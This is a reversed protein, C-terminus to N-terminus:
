MLATTIIDMLLDLVIGRVINRDQLVDFVYELAQSSAAAGMVSKIADPVARSMFMKKAEARLADSDTEAKEKERRAQEEETPWVSNIMDNLKRALEEESSYKGIIDKQIALRIGEVSSSGNRLLLGRLMTLLSRRVNWAKSLLYLESIALFITDILSNTESQSLEQHSALIASRRADSHDIAARPRSEVADASLSPRPSGPESMDMESSARSETRRLANGSDVVGLAPTSASATSVVSRRKSAYSDTESSVPAYEASISDAASALSTSSESAERSYGNLAPASDAILHPGPTVGTIHAGNTLQRMSAAIGSFDPGGSLFSQRARSSAATANDRTRGISEVSQKKAAALVGLIAKRSEKASSANTAKSIADLVGEGAHKFLQNKQWRKEGATSTTEKKDVFKKMAECDALERTNVVLQLYSQLTQCYDVRTVGNWPPFVEPFMKLGALVALKSLVTHLKEFDSINRMAMWGPSTSSAPEIVLTYFGIPRSTLPKTSQNNDASSDIVMINSQFLTLPPSDIAPRRSFSSPTMSSSVSTGAHTSGISSTSRTRSLDTSSSAFDPSSFMEDFTTPPRASSMSQREPTGPNTSLSSDPDDNSTAKAVGVPKRPVRRVTGGSGPTQGNSHEADNERSSPQQQSAKSENDGDCDDQFEEPPSPPLFGANELDLANPVSDKAAAVAAPGNKTAETMENALAKINEEKQLLYIIWKNVADPDSFADVVAELIQRSVIERLLLAVPSRKIDLAPIFTQVLNNAANRLKQRQIEPDVMQALASEPNAVIYDHIGGARSTYTANVTRLERLFVVITNCTSFVLVLFLDAPRKLSQQGAFANATDILM